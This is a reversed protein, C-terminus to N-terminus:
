DKPQNLINNFNGFRVETLVPNSEDAFCNTIEAVHGQGCEELVTKLQQFASM